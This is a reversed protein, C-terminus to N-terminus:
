RKRLYVTARLLAIGSPYVSDNTEYKVDRVIFARHQDAIKALFDHLPRYRLRLEMKLQMVILGDRAVVSEPALTVFEVQADNAARTIAALMGALDESAPLSVPEAAASGASPMAALAGSLTSLEQQLAAAEARLAAVRRKEPLYLGAAPLVVLVMAAAVLAARRERKSLMRFREVAANM